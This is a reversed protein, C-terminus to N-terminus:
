QPWASKLEHVQLTALRAEGGDSSAAITQISSDAHFPTTLYVRGDNGCVEMSSRDILVRIRVRGNEPKLPMGELMQKAADYIVRRNGILLAVSQASRIEFEARIDFLEGAVPLEVSAGPRLAVDQRQHAKQYLKEIEKVPQAFMRAGEPATRLTLESPFAMMQNFPMEPTNIRGWGIQIRRGDTSPVNNFTQSAYFSGWHVQHKGQHDPTFTKGDFRGVAYKGDGAFIVWKRNNRDGDVPLEFIEPCEHYGEIRSQFTWDKLNTSSYFAINRTQAQQDYCALVWHKGPEYWIVKPDRGSHRIVPNGPYDKFTRGGDNSYAICEGRGTSTYAAVIVDENGVQFGATNDKDVVASGSFAWDGFAHPYIAVPWETWHVLDPSVAHGWHMNGWAWGYPNHQYYLHWQGNHYVLGNPDNLWGRRSSFHFQPRAAEHYLNEAGKIADDQVVPDLEGLLADVEIVAQRGQFASVDLFTWFDPQEEAWEIDFTDIARGEVTVAIKRKIAGTKVPFCLYRHRLMISRMKRAEMKAVDSQTIQDVLIYGTNGSAQDVIQIQATGGQLETLDFSTWHLNETNDGTATRVIQGDVLLNLCTKASNRGGGILFNLHRREIRFPPSLLQGEADNGGAGSNALGRGIYGRPVRNGQAARTTPGPGFAQGQVTWSGWDKADFDGLSIDPAGWATALSVCALTMIFGIRIM